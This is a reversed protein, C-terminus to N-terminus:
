QRDSHGLKPRRFTVTLPRLRRVQMEGAVRSLLWPSFVLFFGFLGCCGGRSEM